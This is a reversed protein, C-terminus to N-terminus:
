DFTQVIEGNYKDLNKRSLTQTQRFSALGEDSNLMLTLQYSALDKWLANLDNM